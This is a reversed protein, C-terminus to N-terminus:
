ERTAIVQGVLKMAREGPCVFRHNQSSLNAARLNTLAVIPAHNLGSDILLETQCAM